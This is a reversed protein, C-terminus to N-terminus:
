ERPWRSVDHDSERLDVILSVLRNESQAGYNMWSKLLRKRTSLIAADPVDALTNSLERKM